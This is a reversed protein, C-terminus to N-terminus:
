EFKTETNIISTKFDVFDRSFAVDNSYYLDGFVKQITKVPIKQIAKCGISIIKKNHAKAINQVMDCTNVYESNQPLIIGEIEENIVTYICNSLNHVYIMSRKNYSNPFVPLMLKRLLRYNGDCNEGYVMPPRLITLKFSKDAIKKLENEAMLKTKGYLTTPQLPTNMNIEGVGKGYVSMSSIFVFHKVGSEKALRALDVTLKFNINEYQGVYEKEKKHVIAACHVVCDAGEFIDKAYSNRVSVTAVQYNKSNLFNCLNKAIYGNEGTIVIKM